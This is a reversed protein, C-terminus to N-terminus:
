QLVLENIQEILEKKTLSEDLELGQSKAYEILQAKNMRDLSVAENENSEEILGLGQWYKVAEEPAEFVEGEKRYKQSWGDNFPKLAKVEM